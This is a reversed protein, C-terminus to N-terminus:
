TTGTCHTYTQTFAHFKDDLFSVHKQRVAKLHFDDSPSAHRLSMVPFLKGKILLPIADSYNHLCWQSFIPQPFGM